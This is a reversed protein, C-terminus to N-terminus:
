RGAQGVGLALGGRRPDSGGLHWGTAPDVVIAEAASWNRESVAVVHGRRELARVVDAPTAAEVFLTDPLWQQHFRPAAM